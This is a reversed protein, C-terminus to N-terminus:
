PFPGNKEPLAVFGPQVKRNPTFEEGRAKITWGKPDNNDLVIPRVRRIVGDVTHIAIAGGVVISHTIKEAM